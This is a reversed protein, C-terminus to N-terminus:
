RRLFPCDKGQPCQSCGKNRSTLPLVIFGIVVFFILAALLIFEFDIVLFAIAIGIPVAWQLAVSWINVNFARRFDRRKVRKFLKASLLGYGSPCSNSGWGSCHTCVRRWFWFMTLFVVLLYVPLLVPDSLLMVISGSALTALHPMAHKLRGQTREMVFPHMSILWLMLVLALIVASVVLLVIDLVDGGKEEEPPPIFLETREASEFCALGGSILVNGDTLVTAKAWKRGLVVHYADRWEDSDPDYVELGSHCGGTDCNSGGIVVIEEGVNITEHNHRPFSMSSTLMWKDKEPDYIEGDSWDPQGSASFGGTVMYRGDPLLAGSFYGRGRNMPAVETWIDNALRFCRATATKSTGNHGGAVLVSGDPLEVVSFRALPIPLSTFNEWRGNRFVECSALAGTTVNLGGIIILEGKDTVASRHWFRGVNLDPGTTWTGSTPDYVECSRLSINGPGNYHKLLSPHGNGIYGGTVLVDDTGPAIASDHRIRPVSMSPLTSWQMSTDFIECDSISTRGDTTGGCVLVRGDHLLTSTHNYRPINMDGVQKVEGFTETGDGDVFFSPFLLLTLLALIFFISVKENM